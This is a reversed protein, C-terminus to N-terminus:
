GKRCWPPVFELYCLRCSRVLTAFRFLRIRACKVYGARPVERCSRRAAARPIGSRYGRKRDVCIYANVQAHAWDVSIRAVTGVEYRENALKSYRRGIRPATRPLM